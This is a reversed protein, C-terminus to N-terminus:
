GAADERGLDGAQLRWLHLRAPTAHKVGGFISVRVPSFGCFELTMGKMAQVAPNGYLLRIAAPPGDCTMMIRASRGTLLKEWVYADKTPFKFAFGPHFTRDFFGKLVAPMSGWWMPYTVVFHDCWTLLEQAKLLDPELAQVTKYGHHLVPDFKMRSIDLRRVQAGAAKAGDSYLKTLGGCLSDLDPHGMLILIKKKM